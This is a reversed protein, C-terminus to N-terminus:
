SAILLVGAAIAAVGATRAVARPWPLIKELLVFIMLAAIWVLNMVGFALLLLMLM